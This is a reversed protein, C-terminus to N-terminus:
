IRKLLKPDLPVAYYGRRYGFKKTIVKGKKWGKNKIDNIAKQKDYRVKIGKKLLKQKFTIKENLKQIEEKILKRLESKKM